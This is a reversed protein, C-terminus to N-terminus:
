LLANSLRITTNMSAQELRLPCLEIASSSRTSNLTAGLGYIEPISAEPALSMNLRLGTIGGSLCSLRSKLSFTALPKSTEKRVPTSISIAMVLTSTFVPLSKM